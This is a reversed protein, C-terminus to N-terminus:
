VNQEQFHERSKLYKKLFYNSLYIYLVTIQVVKNFFVGLNGLALALCYM